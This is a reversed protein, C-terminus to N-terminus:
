KSMEESRMSDGEHLGAMGSTAVSAGESLEGSGIATWTGDSAGPSVLIRHAKYSRGASGSTDSSVVPLLKGGDMPDVYNYKKADAASFRMHCKECEYQSAKPAGATTVADPIGIWVHPGDGSTVISATPVLLRKESVSKTIRM